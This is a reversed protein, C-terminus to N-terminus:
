PKPTSNEKRKVCILLEDREDVKRELRLLLEDREQDTM